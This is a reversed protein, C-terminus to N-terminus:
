RQLLPLLHLGVADVMPLLDVAPSLAALSRILLSRAAALLTALVV